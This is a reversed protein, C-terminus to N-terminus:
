TMSRRLAAQAIKRRTEALERRVRAEASEPTEVPTRRPIRPRGSEMPVVRVVRDEGSDIRAEGRALHTESHVDQGALTRPQGCILCCGAKDFLGAYVRESLQAGRLIPNGHSAAAGLHRRAPFGCQHRAVGLAM